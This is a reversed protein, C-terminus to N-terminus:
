RGNVSIKRYGIRKLICLLIVLYIYHVCTQAFMVITLKDSIVRTQIKM